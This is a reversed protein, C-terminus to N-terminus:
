ASMRLKNNIPLTKKVRGGATIPVIWFGNVVGFLSSAMIKVNKLGTKSLDDWSTSVLFVPKSEAIMSKLALASGRGIPSSPFIVAMSAQGTMWLTRKALAVKPALRDSVVLSSKLGFSFRLREKFACAIFTKDKYGSKSLVRKFSLDVGTACGTIFSLGLKGLQSVLLRCTKAELDLHRSGAFLLSGEKVKFDYFRGDKLPVSFDIMTLVEM